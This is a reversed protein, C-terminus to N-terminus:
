KITLDITWIHVTVKKSEVSYQNVVGHNFEQEKTEKTFQLNKKLIGRIPGGSAFVHEKCFDTKDHWWPTYFNFTVDFREYKQRKIGNILGMTGVPICANDDTVTVRVLDGIKPVRRTFNM